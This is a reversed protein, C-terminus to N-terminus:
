FAAWLILYQNILVVGEEAFCLDNREMGGLLSLVMIREKKKGKRKEFFKKISKIEVVWFFRAFVSM